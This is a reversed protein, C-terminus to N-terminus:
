RLKIQPTTKSISRNNDKSDLSELNYRKSKEAYDEQILTDISTMLMEFSRKANAGNVAPFERREHKLDIM